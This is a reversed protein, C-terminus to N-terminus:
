WVRAGRRTGFDYGISARSVFFLVLHGLKSFPIIVLLVEALFIHLNLMLGYPGVQHYALWGTAFPSLALLILFYDWASTLVRVEPRTLRRVLFFLVCAIVVLTLWDALGAPLSPLSWGWAEEFLLNHAELFLPVGIWLIHFVWVAGTFVPQRRSSVSLWPLVWHIISRWAWKPDEFDHWPKDRERSLGYLWALRVALGGVFVIVAVWLAPGILFEYLKDMAM